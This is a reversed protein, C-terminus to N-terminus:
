VCCVCWQSLLHAKRHLSPAARRSCAPQFSILLGVGLQSHHRRSRLRASGSGVGGPAQWATTRSCLRGVHLRRRGASSVARCPQLSIEVALRQDAKRCTASFFSSCSTSALFPFMGCFIKARLQRDQTFNSSAESPAACALIKFFFAPPAAHANERPM